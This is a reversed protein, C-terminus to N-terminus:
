GGGHPEGGSEDGDGDASDDGGEFEVAGDGVEGAATGGTAAFGGETATPGLPESDGDGEWGDEEVEADDGEAGCGGGAAEGSL